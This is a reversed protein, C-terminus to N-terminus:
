WVAFEQATHTFAQLLASQEKGQRTVMFIEVQPFPDSIPKYVLGKRRASATSSPVLGIGLGAAALAAITHKSRAEQGVLPEVGAAHFRELMAEYLAPITERPPAVLPEGALDALGVASRGALRHGRAMALVYPERQFPVAELGRTNQAFLRVFGAHMEGARVQELQESTPAERLDLTVGPREQRFRLVAEPLRSDMAPGVFGVVLRGVEGRAASRTREEAQAVAGLVQRAEELFVRGEETLAVSRSTRALLKCGLEREMDRITLSLAPQAIHLRVAARGFHLEEAVAIFARFHRLEM